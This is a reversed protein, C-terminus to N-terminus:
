NKLKKKKLILYHGKKIIKDNIEKFHLIDEISELFNNKILYCEIETKHNPENILKKFKTYEESLKISISILKDINEVEKNQNTTSSSVNSKTFLKSNKKNMLMAKCKYTSIIHAMKNLCSDILTEDQFLKPFNNNIDNKTNFSILVEPNFKMIGNAEKLFSYIYTFNKINDFFKGKTPKLIINGTNFGLSIEEINNYDKNGLVESIKDSLNKEIIQFESPYIYDKYSSNDSRTNSKIEFFKKIEFKKSFDSKLKSVDTFDIKNEKIIKDLNKNIDLVSKIEYYDIIKNTKTDYSFFRKFQSLQESNVLSYDSINKNINNKSNEVNDFFEKEGLYLNLLITLIDKAFKNDQSENSKENSTSNQINTADENGNSDSNSSLIFNDNTKFKLSNNSGLDIEITNEYINYNIESLGSNEKFSSIFENSVLALSNKQLFDEIKQKEKLEKNKLEFFDIYKLKKEEFIYIIKDRTEKDSKKPILYDNKINDYDIEKKWNDIWDKEILYGKGNVKTTKTSKLGKEVKIEFDNYTKINQLIKKIKDFNNDAKSKLKSEELINDKKNNNFILQKKDKFTVNLFETYNTIEYQTPPSIDKGKECIAKWFTGDVIIYKNDNLLMNTLYQHTKFEIEKITLIKENEKIEINSTITKSKNKEYNIKNKLKIYDNLNIIYGKQKSDKKNFSAINLELTKIKHVYKKILDEKITAM